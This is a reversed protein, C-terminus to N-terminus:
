QFPLHFTFIRVKENSPLSALFNILPKNYYPFTLVTNPDIPSIGASTLDLVTVRNGAQRLLTHVKYWCWAGHGSGHVLVYHRAVPAAPHAKVASPAAAEIAVAMMALAPVLLRLCTLPFSRRDMKSVLLLLNCLRHLQTYPQQQM